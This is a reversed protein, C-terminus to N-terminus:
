TIRKLLVRMEEDLADDRAAMRGGVYKECDTYDYSRYLRDLQPGRPGYTLSYVITAVAGCNICRKSVHLRGESPISTEVERSYTHRLDSLCATAGSPLDMKVIGTKGVPVAGAKTIDM